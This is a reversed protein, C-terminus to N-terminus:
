HLSITDDNELSQMRQAEKAITEVSLNDDRRSALNLIADSTPPTMTSANQNTSTNEVASLTVNSAQSNQPYSQQKAVPQIVKQHMGIPASNYSPGEQMHTMVEEHHNQAARQMLMDLNHATPNNAEDLMDESAHLEELEVQFRVPNVLRDNTEDYGQFIVNPQFESNKSSWGRTDMIQSLRNLNSKVATKSLGDTYQTQIKKPVTINVTEMIGDQDWIRRHPKFFFTVVALLYTEAPQDKRQYLGLLGFIFIFPIFPLIFLISTQALRFAVFALLVSITVFIFQKMSLFGILKDDAEVDQPVKYAAM